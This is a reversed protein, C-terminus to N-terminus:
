LFALFSKYVSGNLTKNVEQEPLPTTHAAPALLGTLEM